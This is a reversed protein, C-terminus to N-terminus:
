AEDIGRTSLYLGQMVQIADHETIAQVLETAEAHTLLDVSEDPHDMGTLWLPGVIADVKHLGALDQQVFASPQHGLRKGNEIAWVLGKQHNSTSYIFWEVREDGVCREIFRIPNEVVADDLPGIAMVDEGSGAPLIVVLFRKETLLKSAQLNQHRQQGLKLQSAVRRLTSGLSRMSQILHGTLTKKIPLSSATLM